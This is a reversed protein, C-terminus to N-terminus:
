KKKIVAKNFKPCKGRKNLWKCINYAHKVDNAYVFKTGVLTSSSMNKKVTSWYLLCEYNNM